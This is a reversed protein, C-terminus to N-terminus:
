EIAVEFEDLLGVAGSLSFKAKKLRNLTPSISYNFSTRFDSGELNSHDFRALLFDCTEFVTHSADCESFDAEKFQCGRITMGKLHQQYFSAYDLQCHDLEYSAGVAHCDEFRIGLMKCHTFRVQSFVTDYTKIMSLNCGEFACDVFKMGSLDLNSFDCGTFACGEFDTYTLPTETFNQKDFREDDIYATKGKM